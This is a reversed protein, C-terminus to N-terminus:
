VVLGRHQEGVAGFVVQDVALRMRFREELRELLGAKKGATADHLAGPVIPQTVREVLGAAVRTEEHRPQPSKQRLLESGFELAVARATSEWPLDSDHSRHWIARASAPSTHDTPCYDWCFDHFSGH